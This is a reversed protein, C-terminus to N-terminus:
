SQSAPSPTFAPYRNIPSPNSVFVCVIGPSSSVIEMISVFQSSNMM